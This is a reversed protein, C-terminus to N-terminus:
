KHFPCFNDSCGQGHFLQRGRDVSPVHGGQKWAKVPYSVTNANTPCQFFDAQGVLFENGSNVSERTVRVQGGSWDTNLIVCHVANSPKDCEEIATGTWIRFNLLGSLCKRWSFSRQAFGVKRRHKPIAHSSILRGIDPPLNQDCL